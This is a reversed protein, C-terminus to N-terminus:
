EIKLSELRQKLEIFDQCRDCDCNKDTNTKHSSVSLYEDIMKKVDEILVSKSLQEKLKKYMVKDRNRLIEEVKDAPFCLQKAKIIEIACNRLEKKSADNFFSSLWQIERKVEEESTKQLSLEKSHEHPEPSSQPFGCACMEKREENTKEIM